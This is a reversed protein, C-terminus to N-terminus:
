ASVAPLSWSTSEAGERYQSGTSQLMDLVPNEEKGL